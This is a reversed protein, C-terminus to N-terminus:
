GWTHAKDEDQVSDSQLILQDLITTISFITLHIACKILSFCLRQSFETLPHNTNSM